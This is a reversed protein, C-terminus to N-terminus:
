HLLLPYLEYHRGDAFQLFVLTNEALTMGASSVSFTPSGSFVDRAAVQQLAKDYLTFSVRRAGPNSPDAGDVLTSFGGNPDPALTAFSGGGGFHISGTRTGDPAYNTVGNDGSGLSGWHSFDAPESFLLNGDTTGFFTGGLVPQGNKIQVTQWVPFTQPGNDNVYGLAFNGVGDDSTGNTCRGPGCDFGPVIPAPLAAPM